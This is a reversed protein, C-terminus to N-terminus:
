KWGEVTWLSAPSPKVDVSDWKPRLHRIIPGGKVITYGDDSGDDLSGWLGIPLGVDSRGSGFPGATMFSPHIGPGDQCGAKRLMVKRDPTAVHIALAEGRANEAKADHRHDAPHYTVEVMPPADLAGWKRVIMLPSPRRDVREYYGNSEAEQASTTPGPPAEKRAKRVAKKAAVQMQPPLLAVLSM